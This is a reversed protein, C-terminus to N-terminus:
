FMAPPAVKKHLEMLAKDYAVGARCNEDFIMTAECDKSYAPWEPVPLVGPMGYRAFNVWAGSVIQELKDSVGPVNCVAVKEANHFVFPIDACHWAPKGDDYPFTFSFMYNYTPASSQEAKTDCYELTGLRNTMDRLILENKDPYAEKFLRILEDAAEAGFQEVIYAKREAASLADKNDIRKARSMEAIVSGVMVPVTQAHKTFGVEYPDGVYWDNKTPGLMMFVMMGNAGLTPVVKMFAKQLTDLPLTEIKEIEDVGYGLESLMGEVLERDKRPASPRRGGVGSMMIAKQFLGDASPTQLLANCKAGGGSQGFITVNDPDGGFNAINAKVWELAAVIDAQGCNGSNAYRAGFSSLDLYGLFNLRHNITVVVVDGFKSLNEGDYAVMEVSSGNFFGGGHIWFLVPKKASPDVSQSWINLYQCDESQPWFRHPVLLDGDPRDPMPVPAIHGYSLADKVGDWPQVPTPMMFRKADAYKIGHFTYTGDLIFGRIKGAKTQVIPESSTCVFRKAM